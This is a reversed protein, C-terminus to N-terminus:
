EQAKIDKMLSIIQDASAPKFEWVDAGVNIQRGRNKWAQHVHGHLLWPTTPVPRHDPYRAEFEAGAEELYPFHCLKVQQGDLTIIKQHEIIEFGMDYYDKRLKDKKFVKDHNGVILKKKGNLRPAFKQANELTMTFDGLYWVTDDIGVVENWLRVMAEDMEEVSTFPRDCYGIINTHGFHHDSTFFDM